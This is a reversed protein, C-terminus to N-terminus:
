DVDKCDEIYWDIHREAVIRGASLVVAGLTTVSYKGSVNSAAVLGLALLTKLADDVTGRIVMKPLRGSRQIDNLLFRHRITLTNFLTFAAVKVIPNDYNFDHITILDVAAHIINVAPKKSM